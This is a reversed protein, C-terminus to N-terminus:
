GIVLRSRFLSIACLETSLALEFYMAFWKELLYLVYPTTINKDILNFINQCRRDPNPTILALLLSIKLLGFLLHRGRMERCVASLLHIATDTIQSSCHSMPVFCKGSDLFVKWFGFCTGSDLFM